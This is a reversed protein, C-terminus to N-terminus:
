REKEKRQFLVAAIIIAGKFANVLYVDVGILTLINNIIGLILIGFITGVLSGKGGEMAIGGVVAMAIANLEYATGSSTSNISNMRSAETIAAVAVAFGLLIFSIIRIRDTNIGSLRTAKENSGVAYIHRGLRTYKSIYFYLAFMLLFYVISMPLWGFLNTNSIAKFADVSGTFGGGEMFYMCFSRYIYQMGLTVIFSPVRGKTVVLGVLASLACSFAIAVILGLVISETTNIVSILLAAVAVLQSSVSLDINGSIIVFSMGFAIIGIVANNRLINVFNQLTLFTSGQLITAVIIMGIAVLIISYESLFKKIVASGKRKEMSQM